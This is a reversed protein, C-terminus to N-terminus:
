DILHIFCQVAFYKREIFNNGDQYVEPQQGPQGRHLQSLDPIVPPPQQPWPQGPSHDRRKYVGELFVQSM